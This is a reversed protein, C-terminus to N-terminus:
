VAEGQDAATLRRAVEAAPLGTALLEVARPHWCYARLGFREEAVFIPFKRAWYRAASHATPRGSATLLACMQGTPMM